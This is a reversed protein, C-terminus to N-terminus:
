QKIIENVTGTTLNVCIERENMLIDNLTKLYMVDTLINKYLKFAESIFLELDEANWSKEKVVFILYNMFVYANMTIFYPFNDVTSKIITEEMNYKNFENMTLRPLNQCREIISVNYDKEIEEILLSIPRKNEGLRIIFKRLKGAYNLIKEKDFNYHKYLVVLSCVLSIVGSKSLVKSDIEKTANYLKLMQEKTKKMKPRGSEESYSEMEDWIKNLKEMKSAEREARRKDKLKKAQKNM